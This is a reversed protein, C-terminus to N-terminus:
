EFGGGAFHCYEFSWNVPWVEIRLKNGPVPDAPLDFGVHEWTEDVQKEGLLNDGYWGKLLVGPGVNPCSRAEVRFRKAGEEPIPITVTAPFTQSKSHVVLVQKRGDLEDMVTGEGFPEYYDKINGFVYQRTNESAVEGEEFWERLKMVEERDGHLAAKRAAGGRPNWVRIEDLGSFESGRTSYEAQIWVTDLSRLIASIESDKALRGDVRNKRWGGDQYLPVVIRRWCLEPAPLDARVIRGAKGRLELPSVIENDGDHAQRIEYELLGGASRGVAAVLKPGPRFYGTVGDGGNERYALFGGGRKPPFSTDPSWGAGLESGKDDVATWDSLDTDYNDFTEEFLLGDRPFEAKEGRPKFFDEKTQDAEDSHWSYRYGIRKLTPHKALLHVDRMSESVVLQELGAFPFAPALQDVNAKELNLTRLTRIKKLPSLDLPRDRATDIHLRRIPMQMLPELDLIDTGRLDLEFGKELRPSQELYVTIRDRRMDKGGMRELERSWNKWALDSLGSLKVFRAVTDTPRNQPFIRHHTVKELNRMRSCDFGCSNQPLTLERLTGLGEVPSLDKIKTDDWLSLWELPMSQLAAVSELEGNAGLNLRKLDLGRLARIDDVGSRHLNLETVNLGGLDPVKGVQLSSLNVSVTGDDRVTVRDESWGKLLRLGALRELVQQKVREMRLEKEREKEAAEPDDFEVGSRALEAIAAANTGMQGLRNMLEEIARFTGESIKGQEETEEQSREALALGDEAVAPDLGGSKVAERFEWAALSFQKSLMLRTGYNVRARYSGPAVEAARKASALAQELETQRAESQSLMVLADVLEEHLESLGVQVVPVEAGLESAMREATQLKELRKEADAIALRKKAIEADLETETALLAKKAEDLSGVTQALEDHAARELEEAAVARDREKVIRVVSAVSMVALLVLGAAVATVVAKHRKVFLGAHTLPGAKQAATAFGTQYATLEKQLDAVSTYRERRDVAMAKSCVAALAEPIKGGPLHASKPPVGLDVRGAAAKEVLEMVNRGAIAPHLHLIEFLIRGLAFIDAREDLTEVEGNAQEPAMHTPTGVLTGELTGGAQSDAASSDESTGIVKAVGWDMVLVEGFDGVMINDPKLDRHIVGRSHSFSVADCVKQYITLLHSLPFRKSAERNNEALTRLITTLTVGNVLKMTYFPEGNEDRGIEHIPVINPHELRGTIRAENLFRRRSEAGGGGRIVKMAVERGMEVQWAGFVDGMGGGAIHSRREYRKGGDPGPRDDPDREPVPVQGSCAPCDFSPLGRLSEYTEGSISIHQGCSPCSVKM